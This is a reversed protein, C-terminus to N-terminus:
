NRHIKNEERSCWGLLYTAALCCFAPQGSLNPLRWGHLSDFGNPQLGPCTAGPPGVHSPSPCSSRWLDRRHVYRLHFLCSKFIMKWILQNPFFLFVTKVELAGNEKFVFETDDMLSWCLIPGSCGNKGWAKRDSAVVMAIVSIRSTM